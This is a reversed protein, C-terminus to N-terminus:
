WGYFDRIDQVFAQHLEDLEEEDYLDSYIISFKAIISDIYKQMSITPENKVFFAFLSGIRQKALNPISFSSLRSLLTEDSQMTTDISVPSTLNRCNAAIFSTIDTEICAFETNVLLCYNWINRSIMSISKENEVSVIFIIDPYDKNLSSITLEDYYDLINEILVVKGASASIAESIEEYNYESSHISIRLANIGDISYSIADAIKRACFGDIILTHLSFSPLLVIRSIIQGFDGSIGARKLNKELVLYAKNVDTVHRLELDLHKEPLQLTYGKNKTAIVTNNGAGTNGAMKRILVNDVLQRSVNNEFDALIGRISEATEDRQKELISIQKQILQVQDEVSQLEATKKNIESKIENLNDQLDKITQEAENREEDKQALWQEKAISQYKKALDDNKALIDALVLNFEDEGLIFQIIDDEKEQLGSILVEEEYGSKKFFERLEDSYVLAEKVVEIIARQENKTMKYKKSKSKLFRNLLVPLYDTLSYIYFERNLRPLHEFRYFYRDNALAKDETYLHNFVETNIIDTKNIIYEPLFHRAHIRDEINGEFRFVEGYKKFYHKKCKLVTYTDADEAIVLLFFDGVSEPLPIGGKIFEALSSDDCDILAKIFIVEYVHISNEAYSETLCKGADFKNLVAKWRRIVPEYSEITEEPRVRIFRPSFYDANDTFSRPDVIHFGEDYYDAIRYLSPRIEGDAQEYYYQICLSIGNEM